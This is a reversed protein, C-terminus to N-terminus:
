SSLADIQQQVRDLKEFLTLLEGRSFEVSFNKAVSSGVAGSPREAVLSFDFVATSQKEATGASSGMGLSVTWSTSELVYPAGM